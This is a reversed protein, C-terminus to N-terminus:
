RAWFGWLWDRAQFTATCWKPGLALAALTAANAADGLLCNRFDGATLHAVPAFAAAEHTDLVLSTVVDEEYPVVCENLLVKLPLAALAMQAALREQMTQAMVGSLQDGSRAPTAKALLTRLDAFAYRQRCIIHFDATAIFYPPAANM